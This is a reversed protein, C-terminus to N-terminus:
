VLFSYVFLVFHFKGDSLPPCDAIFFLDYDTMMTTETLISSYFHKQLSCLLVESIQGVIFSCKAGIKM